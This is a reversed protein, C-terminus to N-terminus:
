FLILHDVSVVVKVTEGPTFDKDSPMLSLVERDGPLRLTYLTEAGRFARGTIECDLGDAGGVVIDEPRLLIEVRDGAEYRRHPNGRIVGLPTEISDSSLMLGDLFRGEGIFDAVFKSNPKHYLNLPTDWQAIHGGNMVGLREGM